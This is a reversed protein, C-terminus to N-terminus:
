AATPRLPWTRDVRGPTGSSAFWAAHGRAAAAYWVAQLTHLAYPSLGALQPAYHRGLARVLALSAVADDEPPGAAVPAPSVGYHDCLRGLTGHDSPAGTRNLRRDLLVPDLVCLSRTGLCAALTTHRLRRLERDLLTLDYPAHAVALPRGGAPGGTLARALAHVVPGASSGERVTWSRVEVPAHPAQQTVLAAATLRDSEADRHQEAGPEPEPSGSRVALASLPGECWPTM